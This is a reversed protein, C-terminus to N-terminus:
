ILRELINTTRLRRRYKEPLRLVAITVELTAELADLATDIEDELESAVDEIHERATASDRAEFIRVLKEQMAEQWEPPTKDFIKRRFHTQCRQRIAGWSFCLQAKVLAEHAYSGFLGGGELPPRSGGDAAREM